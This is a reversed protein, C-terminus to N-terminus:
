AAAIQPKTLIRVKNGEVRLRGEAFLPIAELFAEVELKQVANKLTDVTDSTEDDTFRVPIVKQIIIPGSDVDITAFHLTCGTVKVGADLVVEHVAKDMKGGFSPLLSPHINMIRYKYKEIFMLSVIRMYGIFLVLDAGGLKEITDIVERDFEEINKKRYGVSPDIYIAPLGHNEARQLGYAKPDDKPKNSIVAVIEASLKGEEIATAIGGLDTANTSVMVVVRPKRVM